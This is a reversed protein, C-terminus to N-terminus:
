DVNRNMTYGHTTNTLGLTLFDGPYRSGATRKTNKKKERVETVVKFHRGNKENEGHSVSLIVCNLHTTLDDTIM